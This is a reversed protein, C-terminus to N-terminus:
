RVQLWGGVKYAVDLLEGKYIAVEDEEEAAFNYLVVCVVLGM